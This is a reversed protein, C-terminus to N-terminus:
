FALLSVATALIGAVTCLAFDSDNASESLLIEIEESYGYYTRYLDSRKDFVNFGAIVKISQELSLDQLPPEVFRRNFAARFEVGRRTSNIIYFDQVDDNYFGCSLKEAQVEGYSLGDIKGLM